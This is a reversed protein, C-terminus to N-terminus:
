RNNLEKFINIFEESNVLDIILDKKSKKNRTILKKIGFSLGFTATHFLGEQFKAGGNAIRFATHARKFQNQTDVSLGDFFKKYELCNAYAYDYVDPNGVYLELLKELDSKAM